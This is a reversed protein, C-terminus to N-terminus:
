EDIKQAALCILDKKKKQLCDNLSDFPVRITNKETVYRLYSVSSTKIETEQPLM